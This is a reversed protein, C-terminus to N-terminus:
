LHEAYHTIFGWDDINLEYYRASSYHYQEPVNKEEHLRRRPVGRKVRMVIEKRVGEKAKGRGKTPTIVSWLVKYNAM